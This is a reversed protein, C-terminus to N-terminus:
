AKVSAGQSEDGVLDVLCACARGGSEWPPAGVEAWRFALDNANDLSHAFTIKPTPHGM